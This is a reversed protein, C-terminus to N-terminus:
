LRNKQLRVTRKLPKKRQQKPKRLLRRQDQRASRRLLKKKKAKIRKRPKLFKQKKPIQQSPNRNPVKPLFKRLILQTTRQEAKKKQPNLKRRPNEKVKESGVKNETEAEKETGTEATNESVELRMWCVMEEVKQSHNEDGWLLVSLKESDNLEEGMDLLYKVYFERLGIMLEEADNKIMFQANESRVPEGNPHLLLGAAKMADIIHRVHKSNVVPETNRCKRQIDSYVYRLTNRKKRKQREQVHDVFEHIVTHRIMHTTPNYGESNLLNRLRLPEGELTPLTELEEVPGNDEEGPFDVKYGGARENKLLSVLGKKEASRLFRTFGSFGFEGEDFTPYKRQISQKIIGASVPGPQDKQIGEISDKLIEHAKELSFKAKDGTNMSDNRRKINEYFIFEDCSESLLRSTSGKTGIGIVKKNLERLRTVLPTFDSDGSLLVYTTLYDRTFALEMADVVLAIDARNKEQGRYSTLEMMSVGQELLSQKFKSFRGWDGYARSVLIRGKEKLRNMVARMNFRGLGEKETGAAINEFDILVCLNEQSM